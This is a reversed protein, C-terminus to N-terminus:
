NAIVYRASGDKAEGRCDADAGQSACAAIANAMDTISSKQMHGSISAPYASIDNAGSWNANTKGGESVSGLVFGNNSAVTAYVYPM